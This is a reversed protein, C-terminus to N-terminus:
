SGCLYPYWQSWPVRAMRRSSLRHASSAASHSPHALICFSHLQSSVQLETYLKGAEESVINPDMEVEGTGSLVNQSYEMM